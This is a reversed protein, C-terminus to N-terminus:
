PVRGRNPSPSSVAFHHSVVHFLMGVISESRAVVVIFLHRSIVTGSVDELIWHRESHVTADTSVHMLRILM